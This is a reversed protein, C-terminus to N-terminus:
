RGIKAEKHLTHKKCWKCFKKLELKRELTKKKRIYYNSRKCVSCRLKILNESFKSKAM